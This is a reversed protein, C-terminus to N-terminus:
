LADDCSESASASAGAGLLIGSAVSAPSIEYIDGAAISLDKEAFARARVYHRTWGVLSGDDSPEALVSCRQGIWRSAYRDLLERGLAIAADVREDVIDRSIAGPMKAAGTGPRASFPFVHVRGVEMEKLLELSRLFAEDSEGPFGVILDTSIHVDDGLWRRVSRSVELLMGRTCGRRMAALVGDDGSQIPLHLHPCFKPVSALRELTEDSLAFPEVSGLRVRDIGEVSAAAEVLSGLGRREHLYSGLHIGTIIIERCGAIAASRVERVVEELPRAIQQGRAVPVVCYSCRRSCGDQAKIFARTHATPRDCALPDWSSCSSLDDIMEVQPSRTAIALEILDPLSSKRRNGVVIDAGSSLSREAGEVQVWCGCVAVAADPHERRCRAVLRRSKASASSTIACSVIVVIDAHDDSSRVAGRAELMSAIAESEYLNTRCGLVHVLFKKGALERSMCLIIDSKEYVLKKVILM